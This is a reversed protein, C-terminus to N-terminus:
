WWMSFSVCVGVSWQHVVAYYSGPNIPVLDTTTGGNTSSGVLGFDSQRYVYLDVDGGSINSLTVNTGGTVTFKYWTNMGRLCTSKSNWVTYAQFPGEGAGYSWWSKHTYASVDQFSRNYHKAGQPSGDTTAEITMMGLGDLRRYEYFFVHFVNPGDSVYYNGPQGAVRNDAPLGDSLLSSTGKKPNALDGFAAYVLGSCDVGASKGDGQHAGYAYASINGVLPGIAGGYYYLAGYPVYSQNWNSWGGWDSKSWSTDFGGYNYPIGNFVQGEAANTLQNPRTGQPRATGDPFKDYGTHWTWALTTLQNARDIVQGRTYSTGWASPSALGAHGGSLSSASSPPRILTHYGRGLIVRYLSLNDAGPVMVYVTGDQAAEVARRPALVFREAPIRAAGSLLGGPNYRRVSLEVGTRSGNDFLDEVVAYAQDQRDFGIIRASGFAGYTEIPIDRQGGVIFRGSVDGEGIWRQGLPSAVGRRTHDKSLQSAELDVQAPLANLDFVQYGGVWLQVKGSQSEALRFVEYTPMGDPLAVARTLSGDHAFQLVRNDDDLVYIADRTVLLERGYQAAPIEISQISGAGVVIVRRNVSDLINLDGNPGVALAQPGRASGGENHLAYGIEGPNSGLTLTAVLSWQAEVPQVATATNPLLMASLFVVITLVLVKM